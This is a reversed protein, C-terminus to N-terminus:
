AAPRSRRRKEMPSPQRRWALYMAAAHFLPEFVPWLREFDGTNGLAPLLASARVVNAESRYAALLNGVVEGTLEPEGHEWGGLAGYLNSAIDRDERAKLRGTPLSERYSWLATAM